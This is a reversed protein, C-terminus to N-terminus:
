EYRLAIMSDVRSARWAPVCCAALAVAGLVVVVCGFTVSDTANVGFLLSTMLRTLAFAATMGLALGWALLRLGHGLILWTVDARQAGLAMRIGIEHTRQAVSYAMVGFLGVAALALGVGAFVILVFADLRPDAVSADRYDTLTEIRTVALRSDLLNVHDRIASGFTRPDGNTRTVLALIGIPLQPFPEYVRMAPEARLSRDRADGVVGVVERM